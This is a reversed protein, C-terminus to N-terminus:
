QNDRRMRKRMNKGKESDVEYKLRHMETDKQYDEDTNNM